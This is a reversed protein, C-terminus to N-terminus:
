QHLLDCALESVRVLIAMRASRSIGAERLHKNIVMLRTNDGVNWSGQKDCSRIVAFGCHM